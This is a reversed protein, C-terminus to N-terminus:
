KKPAYKICLSVGTCLHVFYNHVTWQLIIPQLLDELHVGACSERLKNKKKRFCRQPAEGLRVPERLVSRGCPRTPLDAPAMLGRAVVAMLWRAAAALLRAEAMLTRAALLLGLQSM